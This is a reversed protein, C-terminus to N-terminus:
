PAPRVFDSESKKNVRVVKTQGDADVYTVMGAKAMYYPVVWADLVFVGRERRLMTKEGTAEHQMFSGRSKSYVVDFGHDKKELSVGFDKESQSNARHVM